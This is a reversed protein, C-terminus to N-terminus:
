KIPNLVERWKTSQKEIDGNTDHIKGNSVNLGISKDCIKNEVCVYDKPMIGLEICNLQSRAIEFDISYKGCNPLIEECKLCHWYGDGAIKTIKNKRL